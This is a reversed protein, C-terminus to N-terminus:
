VEFVRILDDVDAPYNSVPCTKRVGEMHRVICKYCYVYGSISVATPIDWSQVCLPCIGMYKTSNSDYSPAEPVPLCMLGAQSAEETWWRVFQLFFASLELGRFVAATVFAAPRRRASQWLDNLCWNSPLRLGVSPAAMSDDGVADDSAYVLQQGLLRVALSHSASTNAMYAIYQLVQLCEYIGIGTSCARVFARKLWRQRATTTADIREDDDKFRQLVRELKLRLYPVVVLSAFLLWRATPTLSHPPQVRHRTLDYFIESLSGGPLYLVTRSTIVYLCM